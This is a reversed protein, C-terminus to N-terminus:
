LRSRGHAAPYPGPRMRLFHQRTGEIPADAIRALMRRQKVMSKADGATAFSGHLGLRM